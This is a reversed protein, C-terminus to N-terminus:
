QKQHKGAATSFIILLLKPIQLKLIFTYFLPNGGFTKHYKTSNNRSEREVEHKDLGQKFAPVQVGVVEPYVHLQLALKVPLLQSVKM